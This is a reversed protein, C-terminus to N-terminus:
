LLGRVLGVQGVHQLDDALVSVLRAGLTVPPDYSSDVVRDLDGDSVGRLHEVTRAHTADLHDLLLQASEVRVAAVQDVSHGYGTDEPALPLDFRAVWDQSTWVQETGFASAVQADQVRTLHWLLWALTNAGPDVRAHLQERTLGDLAARLEDPVRGFANVLLDSTGM